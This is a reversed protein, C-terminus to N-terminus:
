PFRTFPVVLNLEVDGMINLHDILEASDRWKFSCVFKKDVFIVAANMTLILHMSFYHARKFPMEYHREETQWKGCKTSNLVIVSRKEDFRPNFHLFIESQHCFNVNFRKATWKLIGDIRICRPLTRQRLETTFPIHPSHFAVSNSERNCHGEDISKDTKSSGSEDASVDVECEDDMRASYLQIARQIM